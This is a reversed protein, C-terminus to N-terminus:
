KKRRLTLLCNICLAFINAIKKVSMSIAESYGSVFISPVFLGDMVDIHIWEASSQELMRTDRELNGFDASLM